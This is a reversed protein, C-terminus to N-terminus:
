REETLEMLSALSDYDVGALRKGKVTPLRPTTKSKTARPRRALVERLADEILASLSRHRQAALLRARKFLDDDISVTTRM